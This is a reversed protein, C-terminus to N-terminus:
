NWKPMREGILIKLFEEKNPVGVWFGVAHNILEMRSSKGVYQAAEEGWFLLWESRVKLLLFVRTGKRSWRRSWNRQDMTYHPVALTGGRVPWGPMEKLEIFGLTGDSCFFVDPTGGPGASNELREAVVDTGSLVGVRLARWM